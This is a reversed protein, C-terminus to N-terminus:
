WEASCINKWIPSKKMFSVSGPTPISTHRAMQARIWHTSKCLPQHSVRTAAATTTSIWKERSRFSQCPMLLQRTKQFLCLIWTWILRALKNGLGLTTSRQEERFRKCWNQNENKVYDFLTLYYFTSINLEKVIKYAAIGINNYWMQRSLNFWNTGFRVPAELNRASMDWVGYIWMCLWAPFVNALHWVRNIMMLTDVVTSCHATSRIISM